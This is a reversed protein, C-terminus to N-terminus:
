FNFEYSLNHVYIFKKHPEYEELEDLFAKFDELTRGYFINDNISFQWIYCLAYKECERYYEKSKGTYPELTNSDKHKFASSTEIDFCMIDDNVIDVRNKRQWYFTSFEIDKLPADRAYYM